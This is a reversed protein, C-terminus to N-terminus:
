DANRIDRRIFTLTPYAGDFLLDKDVSVVFKQAGFKCEGVLVPENVVNPDDNEFFFIGSGYNFHVYFRQSGVYCTLERNADVEIVIDTENCIWQTNRYNHPRSGAYMDCGCLGICLLLLLMYVIIRTRKITFATGM